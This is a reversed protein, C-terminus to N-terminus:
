KHILNLKMILYFSSNSMMLICAMQVKLCRQMNETQFVADAIGIISGNDAIHNITMTTPRNNPQGSYLKLTWRGGNAPFYLNTMKKKVDNAMEM